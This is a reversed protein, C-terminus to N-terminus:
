HTIIMAIRSVMVGYTKGIAMADSPRSVPM